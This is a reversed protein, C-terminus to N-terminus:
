ADKVGFYKKIFDRYDLWGRYHQDNKYDLGLHACELIILEAFRQQFDEASFLGEHLPDDGFKNMARVEEKAKKALEKILKKTRNNM